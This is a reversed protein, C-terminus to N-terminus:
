GAVPFGASRESEIEIVDPEPQAFPVIGFALLRFLTPGFDDCLRKGRQPMFCPKRDVPKEDPRSIGPQTHSLKNLFKTKRGGRKRM